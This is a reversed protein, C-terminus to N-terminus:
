HLGLLAFATKFVPLGECVRTVCSSWLIANRSDTDSADAVHHMGTLVEFAVIGFSWMDASTELIVETKGAEEAKIVEPSVYLPTYNMTSPEGKEVATDVDLLKWTYRFCMINSPKIDCHIVNKSHIYELCRLIQM